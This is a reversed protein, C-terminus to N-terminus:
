RELVYSLNVSSLYGALTIVATIASLISVKLLLASGRLAGFGGRGAQEDEEPFPKAAVPSADSIQGYTREVWTRFQAENYALIGRFGLAVCLLYCELPDYARKTSAIAAMEYFKDARLRSRYVDWELVHDESGWDVSHGWASDTLVEDIWAVLGFKALNFDEALAADVVARQEAADIWSRTLKKVEDLSKQESWSLSHQLDIVKQFIPLVLEAFADTM